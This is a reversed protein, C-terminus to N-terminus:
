WNLHTVNLRTLELEVVVVSFHRLMQIFRLHVDSVNPHFACLAVYVCRIHLTYANRAASCAILFRLDRSRSLAARVSSSQVPLVELRWRSFAVGGILRRSWRLVVRRQIRPHDCRRIQRLSHVGNRVGNDREGRILDIVV